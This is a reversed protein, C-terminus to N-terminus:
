GGPQGEDELRPPDAHIDTQGKIQDRLLVSDNPDMVDTDQNEPENDMEKRGPQLTKMESFNKGADDEFM